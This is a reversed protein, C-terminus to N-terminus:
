GRFQEAWREAINDWDYKSVDLQARISEKKDEDKLLAILEKKFEEKVEPKTIDGKIMIGQNREPLVALDTTIPVCKAAMAKTLSIMDIEPFDSPYAFVDAKKYLEAVEDTGVRGHDTVGEQRMLAQMKAKWKKHYEVQATQAPDVAADIINWGYAIDLTADPVEKKIDPWMELLYELGRDYSSTYVMNNKTKKPNEFQKTDIGNPITVFQEDPLQPQTSRHYGSKVLMKVGKVYDPQYFTKAAVDHLDIFKKSAVRPELFINNRWSILVNFIDRPNFREFRVWKVGDVVQEKTCNNFVTVEFGLKVLRKSLQIVAEESGGCGTVLSEPGWDEFSHSCFFVVSNKPWIVPKTYRWKFDMLIEQDILEDPVAEALKYLTKPYLKQSLQGLKVFSTVYQHLDEADIFLQAHEKVWPHKPNMKAARVFWEYAEHPKGIQLYNLALYGAPRFTYKIKDILHYTQPLKKQLGTLIYDTSRVYDKDEHYLEGISLYSDPRHPLIKQAMLYANRGSERDNLMGYADGIKMYALFKDETSGGVQVYEQLTKICLEFAGRNFLEIGLYLTTRADKGETKIYEYLLAVLNRISSQEVHDSLHKVRFVEEEIHHTVPDHGERPLITEHILGLEAGVWKFKGNNVILRERTHDAVAHGEEDRGYDYVAYFMERDPWTRILNALNDMGIPEDDADLWLVYDGTAAELSANRAAAFNFLRYEPDVEIGYGKMKEAIEPEIAQTFDKEIVVAGVSKLFKIADDKPPVVVVWEDIYDKVLPHIRKLNEKEGKAIQTLTLKM